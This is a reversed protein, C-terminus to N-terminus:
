TKFENHFTCYNWYKVLAHDNPPTDGLKGLCFIEWARSGYQGVGPLEKAHSWSGHLYKKTMNLLTKSRREYLGLPKIMNKLDNIDCSLFSQPDPWKDIFNPLIKEVQKRTTQNLLICSVLILWENPWLHEQILSYPSAKPIM